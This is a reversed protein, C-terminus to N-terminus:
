LLSLTPLNEYKTETFVLNPQNRYKHIRCSLNINTMNKRRHIHYLGHSLLITFTISLVTKQNSAMIAGCKRDKQHFLLTLWASKDSTTVYDCKLCISHCVNAFYEFFLPRRFGKIVGGLSEILWYTLKYEWVTNDELWSDLSILKHTVPATLLSYM